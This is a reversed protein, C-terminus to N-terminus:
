YKFLIFPFYLNLRNFNGNESKNRLHQSHVQLTCLIKSGINEGLSSSSNGEQASKFPSVFACLTIKRLLPMLKQNNRM